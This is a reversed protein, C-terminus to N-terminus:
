LVREETKKVGFFKDFVMFCVWGSFIGLIAGVLIDAPYHIGVFVRALSILAAGVGLWIGWKKHYLYVAAALAFFFAAHGSPFSGTNEHTILSIIQHSIFPRPRFWLWRIIEVLVLRALVISALIVSLALLKKRWAWDKQWLFFILVAAGLIYQLYSAFFIGVADLCSFRGAWNNLQQFLFYDM